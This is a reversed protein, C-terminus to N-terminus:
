VDGDPFVDVIERVWERGSCGDGVGDVERAGVREVEGGGEKFGGGGEDEGGRGAGKDVQAEELGDRGTRGRLIYEVPAECPM